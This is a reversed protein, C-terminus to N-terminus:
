RALIQAAAEFHANVAQDITAEGFKVLDFKKFADLAASQFGPTRGPYPIVTDRVRAALPLELAKVKDIKNSKDLNSTLMAIVKSSGPVGLEMDFIKQADLDNVFWSILAAGADSKKSTKPMSLASPQVVEVYRQKAGPVVPARIVGVEDELYLQYIKAQNLNTFWVAVKSKVQLSDAWQIGAQEATVEPSPVAGAKILDQWYKYYGALVEKPFGLQKGDETVISYGQQRVTNEFFHEFGSGDPAAWIGKPLKPALRILYQKFQETDMDETPPAVGAKDLITKNYVIAVMTDGMTVGILTGKYTGSALAGKTFDKLNIKGSDGYPKLDVLLGKGAYDGMQQVVMGFVDPLSAGAAQTAMKSWYDGWGSFQRTITVGPNRQQYLDLIENFKKHRAEGGWWAMNLQVTQSSTDSTGAANLSLVFVLLMLLVAVRKM